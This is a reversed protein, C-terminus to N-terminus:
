DQLSPNLWRFEKNLLRFAEKARKDTNELHFQDVPPSHDTM